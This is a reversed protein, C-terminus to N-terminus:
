SKGLIFDIGFVFGNLFYGNFGSTKYKGQPSDVNSHTYALSGIAANILMKKTPKFYLSPTLRADFGKSTYTFSTGNSESKSKSQDYGTEFHTYFGAKDSFPFYQNWYVGPNFGFSTSKSSEQKSGNFNIGARIGIVTKDSVALGPLLTIAGSYQNQTPLNDGKVSFNYYSVAGGLLWNGKQVQARSSLTAMVITLVLLFSKQM